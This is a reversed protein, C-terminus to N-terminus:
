RKARSKSKPPLVTHGGVHADRPIVTLMEGSIGEPGSQDLASQLYAHLAGVIRVLAELGYDTANEGLLLAGPDTRVACALRVVTSLRVNQAGREVAAVFSQDSDIINAVDTQTLGLRNRANRLNRGFLTRLEREATEFRASSMRALPSQQAASPTTTEPPASALNRETLQRGPVKRAQAASRKTM